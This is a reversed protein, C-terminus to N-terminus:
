SHAKLAVFPSVKTSGGDAQTYPARWLSKADHRLKFRYAIQDTDFLFHESLGVELGQRKAYGYQSPDVLSIDGQTGLVPVKESVYLPFGLLSGVPRTVLAASDVSSQGIISPQMAQSILANPNYVYTGGGDKIAMLKPITTTNVIFRARNWCSSHLVSVMWALDDYVITGATYRTTNASGGGAILANANLFGQPKGIGPGQISMYDEMWQFGRAFVRQAMADMAIYNDAILDRSLTTFGTLDVIKFTIMDLAADSYTRQTIEGKYFLQFGAYIASQTVGGASTPAKYQDLAPWKFELSNGVPVQFAGSVFAQQEIPIEFLSGYWEPKVAFGYTAGGSLSETGTRKIFETGGYELTREITEEIEGTNENVKYRCMDAGYHKQLRTTAWNRLELPTDRAGQYFICKCMEGFSGRTKQGKLNRDAPSSIHEVWERGDPFKWTRTQDIAPTMDAPNGPNSFDVNGGGNPPGQTTTPRSAKQISDLLSRQFTENSAQLSAVAAQVESSARAQKGSVFAQAVGDPLDYVGDKKWPTSPIEELFQVYM